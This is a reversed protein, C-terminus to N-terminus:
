GEKGVRREESRLMLKIKLTWGLLLRNFIPEVPTEKVILLPTVAETVSACCVEIQKLPLFILKGVTVDAIFENVELVNFILSFEGRGRPQPNPNLPAEVRAVTKEVLRRNFSPLVFFCSM